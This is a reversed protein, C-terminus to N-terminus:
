SGLYALVQEATKRGDSWVEEVTSEVRSDGCIFGGPPLEPHHRKEEVPFGYTWCHVSRATCLGDSIQWLEDNKRVLRPLYSEPPADM